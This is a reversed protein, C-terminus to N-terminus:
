KEPKIQKDKAVFAKYFCYCFCVLGFLITIAFIFGDGMPTSNTPGPYIRKAMEWPKYVVYASVEAGLFWFFRKM